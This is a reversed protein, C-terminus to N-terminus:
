GDQSQAVFAMNHAVKSLKDAHLESKPKRSSEIAILLSYDMLNLSRLYLVDQRM